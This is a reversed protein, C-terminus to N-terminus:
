VDRSSMNAIAAFKKRWRTIASVKKRFLAPLPRFTFSFGIGFADADRGFAPATVIPGPPGM